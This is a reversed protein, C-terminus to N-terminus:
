YHYHFADKKISILQNDTKSVLIELLTTILTYIEMVGKVNM